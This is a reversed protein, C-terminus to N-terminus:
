VRPPAGTEIPGGRWVRALLLSFGLGAVAMASMLGYAAAAGGQAYLWGAAITALGTAAGVGTTSSVTMATNHLRKPVAADIFEITGLYTAAFTLAHLMQVAFLWPLTPDTATLAWRVAAGVAGISILRVPGFRRAVSRAFYLLGIEAAVGTAWLVGILGASYGLATWHLISFGYYAAHAGQTLGTAALLVLFVPRSLLRPAEAWSSPRGGHLEPLDPLGRAVIAAALAAAALWIVAAEISTMAIVAGGALNALIFATSGAARARGYQLHGARDARLAAVDTVPILAGFAWMMVVGAVAIASKAEALLLALAGAFMVLTLVRVPRRQDTEHDAWVAIVPALVLRLMLSAGTILGIAQPEFGRAALWGSFFPLQVGFFLFQAAYLATFRLAPATLSTRLNM